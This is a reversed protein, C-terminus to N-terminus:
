SLGSQSVRNIAAPSPFQMFFIGTSFMKIAPWSWEEKLSFFGKRGSALIASLGM